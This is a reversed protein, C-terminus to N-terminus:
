PAAPAGLKRTDSVGIMTGDEIVVAQVSNFMDRVVVEHGRRTLEDLAWQPAGEIFLKDPKWQHHFRPAGIAEAPALGYDVLRLLSLLTGSIITPGGSAGLAAYPKGDRLVLTPSMSSLPRKGAEVANQASGLLGYSNPVGPQATFDGMENNLVMGYDDVFVKSGFTTNVTSTCALMNEDKDVVSMHSTGAEEVPPQGTGYSDVERVTWPLIRSRLGLAYELSVLREQPVAVFDADGLWTARDAFAHKMAEIILHLGAPTWGLTKLDFGNLINLATVIAIGGSSPPPMSYVEYRGRYSGTIPKRWTVRYEKLDEHTLLGGAAQVHEVISDAVPGEYFARPGQDRILELLRGLGPNKVLEGAQVWRDGRRYLAAHAQQDEALLVKEIRALRKPLLEGAPFGESAVVAARDVLDRWPRSGHREHLAWLGAAEGPVGVALGGRMALSIDAKGDRVYMDATAGAPARERFDLVEVVGTESPRYLCFGGGGLGSAFPNVVGLTLLTAVGADVANGGDRLVKAGVKSALGNDAAVVGRSSSVSPAEQALVPPAVLCIALLALWTVFLNCRQTSKMIELYTRQCERYPQLM